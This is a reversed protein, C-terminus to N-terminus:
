DIEIATAKAQTTKILQEFKPKISLYEEEDLHEQGYWVREFIQTVERFPNFLATSRIESLYNRNTKDRKWKIMKSLSLEKIITLYYLRIALAYQKEEVAERIFKELDTEHFHEEIKEISFNNSSSIKRSRPAFINGASLMNILLVVIVVVVIIIFLVQFASAWFANNWGSSSSQSLNNNANPTTQTSDFAEDYDEVFKESYDFDKTLDKWKQEDFKREEITSKFYEQKPSTSQGIAYALAFLAIFLFYYKLSLKM